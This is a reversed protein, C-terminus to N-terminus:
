GPLEVAAVAQAALGEGRGTFGMAETTTAKVSVRELKLVDTWIAVLTEEEPNRPKLFERETKSQGEEVSPLARLDVKGNPTLPLSELMVFASPVMYEPLKQLLFARLEDSKIAKTSVIYAALREPPSAVTSPQPEGGPTTVAAM